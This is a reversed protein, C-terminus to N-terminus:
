RSLSVRYALVLTDVNAGSAGKCPKGAMMGDQTIFDNDSGVLLFYDRARAPDPRL